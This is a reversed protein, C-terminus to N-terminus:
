RSLTGEANTLAIVFGIGGDLIGLRLFYFRIFTWLSRLCATLISSKRGKRKLKEASLGSYRDCKYIVESLDLFPEQWMPCKLEGLEGKLRYGEHVLDEPPYDMKDRKFLQPQRYNPYWGGYRIWKGMFYNKRPVLYADKANPNKITELIENKSEITCREDSDVSLVWQHTTAAVGSNRLKGFGEFKVQAVKVGMEEAIKATDDESYSDVVVIEDAWLVSQIAERIKKESNYALIFVSLKPSEM